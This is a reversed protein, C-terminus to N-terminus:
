VDDAGGGRRRSSERGDSSQDDARLVLDRYMAYFGGAFGATAGLIVFLPGTGISEDLLNGLWAFLATAVGITIGHGGFRGMQRLAGSSSGDDEGPRPEAERGSNM